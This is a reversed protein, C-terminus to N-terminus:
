FMPDDMLHAQKSDERALYDRVLNRQVDRGRANFGLRLCVERAKRTIWPERENWLRAIQPPTMGEAILRLIRMELPSPLLIGIQHFISLYIRIQVRRAREDRTFIGALACSTDVLAQAGAEGIQGHQYGIGVMSEGNIVRRLARVQDSLLSPNAIAAEYRKIYSMVEFKDKHDHIGTKRRITATFIAFGSLPIDVETKITRTNIGQAMLELTQNEEKTLYINM